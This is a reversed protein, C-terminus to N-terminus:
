RGTLRHLLARAIRDPSGQRRPMDSRADRRALVVLMGLSRLAPPWRHGELLALREAAMQRAQTAADINGLRAGLDALAWGEGALIVQDASDGGLLRAAFAFLLGGRLKGHTEIADRDPPDAVLLAAWGAEMEALEVGGIGAPLLCAAIEALLPEAPPPDQDLAELAERWWALRIAGIMPERAAAVVGGLREDLRWLAALAPRVGAPAYALALAREPDAISAAQRM